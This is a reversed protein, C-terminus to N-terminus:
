AARRAKHRRPVPQQAVHALFAATPNPSLINEPACDREFLVLNSGRRLNCCEIAHHPPAVGRAAVGAAAAQKWTTPGVGEIGM